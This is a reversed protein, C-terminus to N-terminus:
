GDGADQDGIVVGVDEVGELQQQAALVVLDLGRGRGRAHDRRHLGGVEVGRQEVEVVGAVGGGPVLADLQDGAQAAQVGRQRDDHHRRPPAHFARHGSDPAARAVVDLLGPLVVPQQGREPVPELQRAREPEAAPQLELVPQQPAVAHRRQDGLGRRHSRHQVQDRADPRALRVHEDGALVSGALLQHDRIRWAAEGRAARAITVTL